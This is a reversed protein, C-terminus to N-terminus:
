GTLNYQGTRFILTVRSRTSLDGIVYYANANFIHSNAIAAIGDILNSFGVVVLLVAAFIIMWRSESHRGGASRALKITASTM